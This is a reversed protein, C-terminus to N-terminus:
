FWHEKMKSLFEETIPYGSSEGIVSDIECHPCLATGYPKDDIYEHIEDSQFISLCYFCGCKQSERLVEMNNFSHEHAKIIDECNNSMKEGEIQM